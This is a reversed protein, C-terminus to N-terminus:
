PQQREADRRRGSAAPKGQKRPDAPRMHSNMYTAVDWAEQDSLSNGQGLPMNAKIFAAALEVRSMGAGGNFSKPGWLPPFVYRGNAHQGQGDRGHCVACRAQFVREGRASSPQAEPKTLAPYGRGPLEMGTPAGRAMWYFYSVLATVVESDPPPVKGNQSFRFCGQIREQMTNVKQNKSRFAPYLVYAGWMPASDAKRGSDLHCNRCNLANGVYQKAHTQTDDFILKGLRVMDGFGDNPIDSEPPPTFAQKSVPPKHVERTDKAGPAAPKPVSPAPAGSAFYETVAKADAPSLAKAIHRMLGQPDNSRKDNRWADIQALSYSAHQGSLRPFTGIGEGNAGHCSICPPINHAWDGAHALTQGRANVGARAARAPKPAPLSAYYQAMAAVEDNRLEAAIPQMVGNVRTGTRFAELQAALYRENLGALAPYGASANGEGAPGHCSACPATKGNGQKAIRAGDAASVQQTTLAAFVLALAAWRM